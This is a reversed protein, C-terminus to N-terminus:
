VKAFSATYPSNEPSVNNAPSMMENRSGYIKVNESAFVGNNKLWSYYITSEPLLPKWNKDMQWRLLTRIRCLPRHWDGEHSIQLAFLSFLLSYYLCNFM